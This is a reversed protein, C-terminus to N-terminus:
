IKNTVSGVTYCVAHCMYMYQLTHHNSMPVADSMTPFRLVEGQCFDGNIMTARDLIPFLKSMKVSVRSIILHTHTNHTIMNGGCKGRLVNWMTRWTNHIYAHWTCGYIVAACGTTFIVSLIWYSVTHLTPVISYFTLNSWNTNSVFILSKEKCESKEEQKRWMESQSWAWCMLHQSPVTNWIQLTDQVTCMCYMHM